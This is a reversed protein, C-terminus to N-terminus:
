AGQQGPTAQPAATAARNLVARCVDLFLRHAEPIRIQFNHYSIEMGEFSFFTGIGYQPQDSAELAWQKEGLVRSPRFLELPVGQAEARFTVEEAVDARQTTKFSPKGMGWWLAKSLSMFSPAAFVHRGNQLHNSRQINGTMYGLSAKYLMYPIVLSNLPIADIDLLFYNDYRSDSLFWDIAEGHGAGGKMMVFDCDMPRYRNVVENQAAVIDQPINEEFYSFIASKM